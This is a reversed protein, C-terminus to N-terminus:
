KRLQFKGATTGNRNLYYYSRPTKGDAYFAFYNGDSGKKVAVYGCFVHGRSTKRYLKVEEVDRSLVKDFAIRRAKTLDNAHSYTYDNKTFIQLLFPYKLHPEQLKRDREKYSKVAEAWAKSQAERKARGKEWEERNSERVSKQFAKFREPNRVYSRVAGLAIKYFQPFQKMVYELEDKTTFTYVEGLHYDEAWVLKLDSKRFGLDWKDSVNVIYIPTNKYVAESVTLEPKM